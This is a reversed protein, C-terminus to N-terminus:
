GGAQSSFRRRLSAVCRAATKGEWLPPVRGKPWRGAIVTDIAGGLGSITVLRNTGLSVTVPRETTNRLTLRRQCQGIELSKM